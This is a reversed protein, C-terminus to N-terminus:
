KAMEHCLLLAMIRIEQEESYTLKLTRGGSYDVLFMEPFTEKWTKVAVGAVQMKRCRLRFEDFARVYNKRSESECKAAKLYIKGRQRKTYMM